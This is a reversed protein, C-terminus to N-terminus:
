KKYFLAKVLWMQADLAKMIATRTVENDDAQEQVTDILSAVSVKIDDVTSRQSPNFTVGVLNSGYSM